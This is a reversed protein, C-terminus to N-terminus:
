ANQHSSDSAGKSMLPGHEAEDAGIAADKSALNSEALAEHVNHM